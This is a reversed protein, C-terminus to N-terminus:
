PQGGEAAILKELLERASNAALVRTASGITRVATLANPPGTIVWGDDRFSDLAPLVNHAPTHGPHSPRDNM